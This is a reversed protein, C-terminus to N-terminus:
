SAASFSSKLSKRQISVVVMVSAAMTTLRVFKSEPLLAWICYEAPSM